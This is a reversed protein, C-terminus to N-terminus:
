NKKVEAVDWLKGAELNTITYGSVTVSEGPKLPADAYLPDKATAKKVIEMPGYGSQKSTDIQYVLLGNSIDKAKADFRINRRSEIAIATTSSTPIVLLQPETTNTAVSTLQHTTTKSGDICRVQSSPLFDILWRSWATWEKSDGPAFNMNDFQGMFKFQEEYKMGPKWGYWYYDTLGLLHGFEHALLLYGDPFRTDAAAMTGLHVLGEGTRFPSQRSLIFAPSVDAQARSTNPPMVAVVFDVGTFNIVADSADIAAQVFKTGDGGAARTLRYSTVSNPLRFYRNEYRWEFKVTNASMADFFRGVGDTWFSIDAKPEAKDTLDPFDVYILQVVIKNSSRVMEPHRPFGSRIQGATNLSQAIQCREVPLLDSAPSIATKPTLPEAPNIPSASNSDEAKIGKGWVFKSKTKKLQAKTAKKCNYTVDNVIRSQGLKTCATGPKPATAASASIPLLALVILLFLSKRM